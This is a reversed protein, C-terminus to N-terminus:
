PKVIEAWLYGGVYLRSVAGAVKDTEGPGEGIVRPYWGYACLVKQPVTWGAPNGIRILGLYIGERPWGHSGYNSDV